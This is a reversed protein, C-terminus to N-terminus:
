ESRYRYNNLTTGTSNVKNGFADYDYTDPVLNRLSIEDTAFTASLTM